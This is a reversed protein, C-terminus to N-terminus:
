GHRVFSAADILGNEAGLFCVVDPDGDEPLRGFKKACRKDTLPGKSSELRALGQTSRHM